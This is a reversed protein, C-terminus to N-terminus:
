DSSDQTMFAKLPWKSVSNSYVPKTYPAYRAYKPYQAYQAYKAYPTYYTINLAGRVGGVIAGQLDYIIGNEFFGIHSGEWTYIFSCGQGCGNVLYSVAEGFIFL